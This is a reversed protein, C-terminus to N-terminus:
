SLRYVNNRRSGALAVWGERAGCPAVDFWPAYVATVADEQEALIGALLLQGGEGLRATFEAVLACLTSALINAVLLDARPPLRAADQHVRLQGRVGNARANEATALLAQPDIDFADVQAAGLLV